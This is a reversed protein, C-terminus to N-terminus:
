HLWNTLFITLSKELWQKIVCICTDLKCSLKFKVSACTDYHLPKLQATGTYM